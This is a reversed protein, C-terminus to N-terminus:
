RAGGFQAIKGAVEDAFRQIFGHIYEDPALDTDHVLPSLDVVFIMAETVDTDHSAHYTAHARRRGITALDYRKGGAVQSDFVGVLAAALNDRGDVALAVKDTDCLWDLDRWVECGYVTRPRAEPPLARLADITRLATAVHTDHKDALNHTYVTEARALACIETLDSVTRGDDPDKVASSPHDLMLMAGYDGVIAAKKQEVQRVKRMQEDTYDAYLNSRPSGSGNTVVVGTFWKDEVGFCELIGHYAMIELDDQHASIGIATTRTVGADAPTGDPIFIQASDNCLKM